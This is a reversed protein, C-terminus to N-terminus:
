LVRSLSFVKWWWKICLRSIYWLLMSFPNNKPFTDFQNNNVSTSNWSPQIYQRLISCGINSQESCTIQNISCQFRHNRVNICSRIVIENSTDEDDLYCNSSGDCIRYASICSKTRKCIDIFHYPRNNFTESSNYCFENSSQKSTKSRNLQWLYLDVINSLIM